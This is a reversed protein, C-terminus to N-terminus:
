KTLDKSVRERESEDILGGLAEFVTDNLIGDDTVNAEDKTGAKSGKPSTGETVEILVTDGLIDVLHLSQAIRVTFLKLRTLQQLVIRRGVLLKM